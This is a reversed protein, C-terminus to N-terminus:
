LRTKKFGFTYINGHGEDEEEDDLALVNCSFKLRRQGIKGNENGAM